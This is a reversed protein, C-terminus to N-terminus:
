KAPAEGQMIEVVKAVVDRPADVVRAVLGALREGDLPEIELNLRNAEDMFDRSAVMENFARRLIARTEPALGPPAAYPQDVAVTDSVFAFLRKQEDSSALETLLPVDPLDPEKRLGIQVLPIIKGEAVWQPNVAKWSGWPNSGRGQLEGKEMALNVATGSEYGTVIRFKTGLTANLLAPYGYMTGVRTLAGVVIPTKKADAINKVGSTHWAVLTDNSQGLSALWNLERARFRVNGGGIAEYYPTSRNFTGIVTGDRPAIEYLYNAAQAGSAGPMSSLVVAPKGPLHQGLHRSVLRAYGDHSGGPASGVVIRITKDRFMEQARSSACGAALAVIFLTTSRARRM